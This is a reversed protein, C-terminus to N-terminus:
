VILPDILSFYRELHVEPTWERTFAEFGKRGMDDRAGPRNLLHRLAAALSSDDTYTIGGGSTEAVETMGGIRPVIM